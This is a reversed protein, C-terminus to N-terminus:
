FYTMDPLNMKDKNSECLAIYDDLHGHRKAVTRATQRNCWSPITTEFIRDQYGQESISNDLRRKLKFQRAMIAAGAVSGFINCALLIPRDYNFPIQPANFLLVFEGLPAIRYLDAIYELGTKIKKIMRRRIINVANTQRHAQNTEKQEGV